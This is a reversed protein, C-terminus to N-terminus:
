ELYRRFTRSVHYMQNDVKEILDSETEASRACIQLNPVTPIKEIKLFSSLPNKVLINVNQAFINDWIEMESCM